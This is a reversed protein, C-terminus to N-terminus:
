RRADSPALREMARALYTRADVNEPDLALALRFQQAADAMRGLQALAVGWNLHTDAHRPRVRDAVEYREIADTPRGTRLLANGYNVQADANRPDLAIARAYREMAAAQDGQRSLAIGWNNYAAAYESDLAIAAKYHSIAEALRGDRALAVGLNNHGEAYTPDLEVGRGYHEAAEAARGQAILLDGMAIQAISSTSDVSLVRTWLRESDRWYGTQHWSVAALVALVGVPVAVRVWGTAGRWRGWAGGALLGIIPGAHYTYRDAVIQPGNQVVGLLPLMVVLFAVWAATVGPWRRRVLWAAASIAVVVVYSIAYRAEWANVRKPMEYLPALGAPVVTKWLYFALSYASVAIKAPVGLQAPPHLAVISVGAAAIALVAFPVLELWVHRAAASWYGNTGGLRRLPYVNLVLLTAPLTMSTAKSLLAAVFLSVSGIYWRWRAPAGSAFHLYCLLSALYWLLSLMDRRETIWAVSEVRLPHIAFVLAAVVSPGVADRADHRSVVGSLALVEAAVVYVLIANVAHLVVNQLHYGFPNMGWLVYDLGLTMWTMPVYHGMHTTTWMWRLETWGLGRYAPNDLFNRNDDWTVFGGRLAPLFAMIAIAAVLLPAARRWDAGLSSGARPASAKM